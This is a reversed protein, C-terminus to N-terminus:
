MEWIVDGYLDAPHSRGMFSEFAPREDGIKFSPGHGPFCETDDPWTFVIRRMTELTTIFDEASWTKGPGGQFITDGVIVRPDPLMLSVMGPTHGPTHVIRLTHRGLTFTDGDAFWHDIALNDHPEAPHLYVPAQLQRRMEALAGIHDPHTHTLLIAVPTSDVLMAMLSEPDAGPDILVSQRTDPCILAYSNMPWPGVETSKLILLATM